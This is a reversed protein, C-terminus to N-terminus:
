HGYILFSRLRTFMLCLLPTMMYYLDVLLQTAIIQHKIEQFVMIWTLHLSRKLIGSSQIRDQKMATISFLLMRTIKAVPDSRHPPRIGIAM